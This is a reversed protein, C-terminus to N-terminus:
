GEEVFYFVDEALILAATKNIGLRSPGGRECALRIEWSFRNAAIGAWARYRLASDECGQPKEGALGFRENQNKEALRLTRV